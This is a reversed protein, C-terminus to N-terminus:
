AAAKAKKIAVVKGIAPGHPPMTFPKDRDRECYAKYFRDAKEQLAAFEKKGQKDTQYYEMLSNPYEHREGEGTLSYIVSAFEMYQPEGNADFCVNGAADFARGIFSVGLDEVNLANGKYTQLKDEIRALRARIQAM